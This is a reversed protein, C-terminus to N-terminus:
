VRCVRGSVVVRVFLYFESRWLGEWGRVGGRFLYHVGTGPGEKEREERERIKNVVRSKCCISTPMIPRRVAM